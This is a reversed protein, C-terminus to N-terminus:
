PYLCLYLFLCATVFLKPVATIDCQPLCQAALEGQFHSSIGHSSYLIRAIVFTSWWGSLSM